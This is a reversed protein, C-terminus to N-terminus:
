YLPVHKGQVYDGFLSGFVEVFEQYINMGSSVPVLVLLRHDNREDINGWDLSRERFETYAYFCPRTVRQLRHRM